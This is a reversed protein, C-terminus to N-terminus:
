SLHINALLPVTFDAVREKVRLKKTQALTVPIAAASSQTGLATFYAPLMTKLMRFPNQQSLIGAAIYQMVLYLIHLLIIMVFVKAFVGLITGVQGAHTMNSFIGFIHIPLLPIIVKEILLQVIDRFDNMVALLTNGKIAAAGLGIIFALLLATMVEM